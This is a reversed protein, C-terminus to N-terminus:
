DGDQQSLRVLLASALEPEKEDFSLKRDPAFAGFAEALIRMDHHLGSQISKAPLFTFAQKSESQENMSVETAMLNNRLTALVDIERQSLVLLEVGLNNTFPMPRPLHRVIDSRDPPHGLRSARIASDVFRKADILGATVNVLEAAILAKLKKHREARSAVEDARRQQRDFLVGSLIAAAGILSGVLGGIVEDSSGHHRGLIFLAIASVVLILVPLWGIKAIWYERM